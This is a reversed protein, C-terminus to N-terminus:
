LRTRVMELLGGNDTSSPDELFHLLRRSPVTERRREMAMAALTDPASRHTPLILSAVRDLGLEHEPERRRRRAASPLHVRLTRRGVSLTKLLRFGMGIDTSCRPDRQTM